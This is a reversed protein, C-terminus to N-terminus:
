VKSGTWFDKNGSDDTEDAESSISFTTIGEYGDTVNSIDTMTYPSELITDFDAETLFATVYESGDDSLRLCYGGGNQSLDRLCCGFGSRSVGSAATNEDINEINCYLKLTYTSYTDRM